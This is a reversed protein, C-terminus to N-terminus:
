LTVEVNQREASEAIEFFDRKEFHFAHAVLNAPFSLISTNLDRVNANYFRRSAQINEETAALEQQLALYNPASILEPYNEAVAFLSKLAGSLANEASAHDKVSTALLARSRAETVASFVKEEHAAVGKVTNVLNPVLDYRRKLQVDIDSWAEETRTKLAILRNFAIIVWFFIVALAFIILTSM